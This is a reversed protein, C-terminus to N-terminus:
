RKWCASRQKDNMGEVMGILSERVPGIGAVGLLNRELSKIRAVVSLSHRSPGPASSKRLPPGSSICNEVFLEPVCQFRCPPNKDIASM